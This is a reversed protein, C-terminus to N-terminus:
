QMSRVSVSARRIRLKKLFGDGMAAASLYPDRASLRLTPLITVHPRIRMIIGSSLVQRAIM